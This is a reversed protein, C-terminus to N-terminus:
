SFRYFIIKRLLLEGIKYGQVEEAVKFTSIKLRNNGKDSYILIAKLESEVEVSFCERGKRCIDEYWSSFKPYNEKLSDFFPNSVEYDYIYTNKLNPHTPKFIQYAKELYLLIEKISYVREGIQQSCAKKYLKKDETVLFHVTNQSVANLILDDLEDNTKKNKSLLNVKDSSPPTLPNYKKLKSLTIQKRIEDKDKEIDAISAPHILIECNSSAIKYFASYDTNIEKNDELGIIINTDILIRLKNTEKSYDIM